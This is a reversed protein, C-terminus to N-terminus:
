TATIYDDSNAYYSDPVKHKQEWKNSVIQLLLYQM